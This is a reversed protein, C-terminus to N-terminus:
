VIRAVVVTVDDHQELAGRFEDVDRLVADRLEEATGDGREAIVRELREIGYSEGAANSTEYIGDSHLVFVDGSEFALQRQPISVPLKVGLPPAFLNITEITGNARRLVVPPHGASAITATRTARDLLVVAVTVLMRRRSTQTVLDHLRQLVLAPDALIERLLTFGSRVAALV